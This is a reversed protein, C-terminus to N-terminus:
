LLLGQDIVQALGRANGVFLSNPPGDPDDLPGYAVTHGLHLNVTERVLQAGVFAAGDILLLRPPHVRQGPYGPLDILEPRLVETLASVLEPDLDDIKGAAHRPSTAMVKFHLQATGM